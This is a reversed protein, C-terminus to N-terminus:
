CNYKSSSEPNAVNYFPNLPNTSADASLSTGSGLQATKLDVPTEPPTM